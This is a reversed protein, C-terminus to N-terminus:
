ANIHMYTPLRDDINICVCYAFQIFNFGCSELQFYLYACIYALWNCPHQHNSLMHIHTHLCTWQIPALQSYMPLDMAHINISALQSYMYIHVHMWPVQSCKTHMKVQVDLVYMRMHLCTPLWGNTYTCHTLACCSNMCLLSTLCPIDGLALSFHLPM